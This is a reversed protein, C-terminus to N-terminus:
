CLVKTVQQFSNKLFLLASGISVIRFGTNGPRGRCSPWTLLPISNREVFDFLRKFYPFFCVTYHPFVKFGSMQYRLISRPAPSCAVKFLLTCRSLLKGTWTLNQKKTPRNHQDQRFPNEGWIDGEKNRPRWWSSIWITHRKKVFFLDGQVALGQYFSSTVRLWKIERILELRNSELIYRFFDVSDFHLHHWPRCINFIQTRCNM